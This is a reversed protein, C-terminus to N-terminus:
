EPEAVAPSQGGQDAEARQGQDFRGARGLQHCAEVLAPEVAKGRRLYRAGTPLSAAGRRALYRDSSARYRAGGPVGAGAGGSDFDKSRAAMAKSRDAAADGFRGTHLASRPKPRLGEAVQVGHNWWCQSSVLRLRNPM